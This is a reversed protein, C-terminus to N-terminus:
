SSKKQQSKAEGNMTVLPLNFLGSDFTFLKEVKKNKIFISQTIPRYKLPQNMKSRLRSKNYSNQSIQSVNQSQRPSSMVSGNKSLLRNSTPNYTEISPSVSERRSIPNALESIKRPQTLYTEYIDDQSRNKVLRYRQKTNNTHPRAPAESTITDHNITNLEITAYKMTNKSLHTKDQNQIVNIMKEIMHSRKQEVEERFEKDHNLKNMRTLDTSVTRYHIKYKKKILLHNKISDEIINEREKYIHVLYKCVDDRHDQIDDLCIKLLVTYDNAAVLSHKFKNLGATVELGAIDGKDLKLITKSNRVSRNDDEQNLSLTEMKKLLCEGQYLLYISNTTENERYCIDDRKFFLPVIKRYYEDFKSKHLRKFLPIKNFIFFRRENEAKVMFKSFYTNFTEKNVSFLDTDELALASATRATSYLLAWEGFCMGSSLQFREDENDNIKRNIKDVQRYFGSTRSEAHRLYEM